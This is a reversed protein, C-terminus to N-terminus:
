RTPGRPTRQATNVLTNLTLTGGLVQKYFEMAQRANGGFSIYPNLHTAM